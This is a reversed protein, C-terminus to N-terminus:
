IVVASAVSAALTMQSAFYLPMGVLRNVPSARVFRERAMAVDSAAFGLAGLALLASAGAWCASVATVLMVGIVGFYTLVATRLDESVHPLLWFALAIGMAVTAAATLAAAGGHLPLAAFAIVYAVHGLLFLNLAGLFARAHWRPILLADGVAGLCLGVLLTRGYTSEWAGWYLAALVFSIAALPKGLWQFVSRGSSEGYLALGVGLACSACLWLATM